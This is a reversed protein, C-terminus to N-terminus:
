GSGTAADRRRQCLSRPDPHEVATVIANVLDSLQTVKTLIAPECGSVKAGTRLM